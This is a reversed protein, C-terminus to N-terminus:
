RSLIRPWLKPNELYYGDIVGLGQAQALDQETQLPGVLVYKQRRHIESVIEPTLLKIKRWQLPTILIDGKLPAAPLLGASWPAMGQFSLLRLADAQSSGYPTNALLERTARLVVDVESQIVIEESDLFPKLIEALQRDIDLANPEINLVWSRHPNQQLLSALSQSGSAGGGAGAVSRRHVQLAGGPDRNVNAWFIVQQSALFGKFEPSFTSSETSQPSQLPGWEAPVVVWPRSHSFFRHDFKPFIQGLGWFYITGLSMLLLALTGFIILVIRM